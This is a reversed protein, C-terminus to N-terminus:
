YTVYQSNPNVESIEYDENTQNNIVIKYKAFDNVENFKIDFKISLNQYTAENVIETNDSKSDLTVSEIVVNNAAYVNPIFLFTLLILLLKKM